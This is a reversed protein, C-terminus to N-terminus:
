KSSLNIMVTHQFLCNDLYRLQCNVHDLLKCVLSANNVFTCLFQVIKKIFWRYVYNNDSLLYTHCVYLIKLLVYVKM